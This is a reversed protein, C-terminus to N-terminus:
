SCLAESAGLAICSDECATLAICSDECATSAECVCLTLLVCVITNTGGVAALLSVSYTSESCQTLQLYSYSVCQLTTSSGSCRCCSFSRENSQSLSEVFHRTLSWFSELEAFLECELFLYMALYISEIYLAALM